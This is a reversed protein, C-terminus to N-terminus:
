FPKSMEVKQTPQNWINEENDKIVEQKIEESVFNNRM